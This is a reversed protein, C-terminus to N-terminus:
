IFLRLVVNEGYATPSTAVRFEIRQGNEHNFYFNGDQPQNKETIDLESLVKLISIVESRIKVDIHAKEHLVGHTRFRVM